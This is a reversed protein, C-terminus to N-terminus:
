KMVKVEQTMDANMNVSQGCNCGPDLVNAGDSTVNLAGMRTGNASFSGAPGSRTGDLGQVEGTYNPQNALGNQVMAFGPLIKIFESANRGIISVNQIEHTSITDSLEGSDMPTITAEATITVTETTAGVVMSIKPLTRRDGANLVIGKQQWGQFGAAQISVTYTGPPIATIAFYGENNTKTKRVDGTADNTLTVAANPVVAGSPDTAVATLQATTIQANVISAALLTVIAVFLAATGRHM